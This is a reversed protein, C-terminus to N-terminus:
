GSLYNVLRIFNVDYTHTNLLGCRILKAIIINYQINFYSCQLPRSKFSGTQQVCYIDNIRFRVCRLSLKIKTMAEPSQSQDVYDNVGLGAKSLTLSIGNTIDLCSSQIASM